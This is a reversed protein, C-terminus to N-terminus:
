DTSNDPYQRPLIVIFQAYEDENSDVEITGGLKSIAKKVIYLGLGTDDKSEVNGRYFMNFIKPLISKPIGMGNDIFSIKIADNGHDTITIQIKLDRDEAKYKLANEFINQYISKISFEDSIFPETINKSYIIDIHQLGSGGVFREVISSHIFDFDINSQPLSQNQIKTVSNLDAINSELNSLKKKILAFLQKKDGKEDTLGLNCLGDITKLPGRLDHSASYLFLNLEESKDELQKNKEEILYTRKQVELELKNNMQHTVINELKIRKFRETLALTMFISEAAIGYYLIFFGFASWSSIAVVSIYYIIYTITLLLLGVIMFKTDTNNKKYAYLAILSCFILTFLEFHFTILTNDQFMFITYLIRVLILWKIVNFIKKNLASKFYYYTYLMLFVGLTARAINKIIESHETYYPTLFFGTGDRYMMHSMQSLIFLCYYLVVKEKLIAFYIINYILVFLMFGYFLGFEFNEKLFSSAFKEAPYLAFEFYFSSKNKLRIYYQKTEHPKLTIAFVPQKHEILRDYLSYHNRFTQINNGNQDIEIFDIEDITFNYSVLYLNKTGGATNQINFTYWYSLNKNKNTFYKTTLHNETKSVPNWGSVISSDLHIISTSDNIKITETANCFLM